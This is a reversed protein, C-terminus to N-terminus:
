RVAEISEHLVGKIPALNEPRALASILDHVGEVGTKSWRRDWFLQQGLAVKAATLPNEPPIFAFRASLWLPLQLANLAGQAVPVVDTEGHDHLIQAATKL